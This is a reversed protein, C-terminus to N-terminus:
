ASSPAVGNAPEGASKPFNMAWSVSFHALTILNAFMLASHDRRTNWLMGNPSHRCHGSSARTPLAPVTSSRVVNHEIRTKANLGKGTM